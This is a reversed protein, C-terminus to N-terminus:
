PIRWIIISLLVGFSFSFAQSTSAFLHVVSALTLSLVRLCSSAQQFCFSSFFACYGLRRLYSLVTEFVQLRELHDYRGFRQHCEGSFIRDTASGTHHHRPGWSACGKKTDQKLFKNARAAFKQTIFWEKTTLQLFSLSSRSARAM